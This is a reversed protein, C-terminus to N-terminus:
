NGEPLHHTTNLRQKWEKVYYEPLYKQYFDTRSEMYRRLKDRDPKGGYQLLNTNILNGHKAILEKLDQNTNIADSFLATVAKNLENPPPEQLGFESRFLM